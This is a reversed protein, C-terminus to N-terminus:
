KTVKWYGSKTSGVRELLNISKLKNINDLIKRKSIGIEDAMQAMSISKNMKILELIKKQNITLNDPVKDKEFLNVIFFVIQLISM